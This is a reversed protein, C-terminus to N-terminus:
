LGCNEGEDQIHAGSIKSRKPNENKFKSGRLPAYFRGLTDPHVGLWYFTQMAMWRAFTLVFGPGDFRRSSTTVTAPLHAIRGVRKLERLLDLDEFIALAKFGGSTEYATRRVFIASDGYYLGLTRLKPYLWTMFQAARSQGDFRVDFNGCVVGKDLLARSIHEIANAPVVTDAHLFWFVDGHADCAGLHLQTGRGRVSAIVRAGRELAIERTADDSDGDVVIIEVPSSLHSISELTSGISRAENLAPIIITLTPACVAANPYNTM